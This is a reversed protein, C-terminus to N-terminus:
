RVFPNVLKVGFPRFDRVDRTVVTLGHRIATAAIMADEYLEDSRKHMLKGWIRFSIADMALVNWRAAVTDAWAEIEDAKAPDQARTLEIGTQIEGLSVASVYLEQDPRQRLWEMVAGHPRAKRTESIVNTDVLYM